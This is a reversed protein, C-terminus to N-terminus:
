AVFVDVSAILNNSSDSVFLTVTSGSAYLTSVFDHTGADSASFPYDQPLQADPDTSLFTVTGTYGIAVNGYADYATVTLTFAAGASVPGSISIVLQAAPQTQYSGIDVNGNVVRPAGRQDTGPFLGAGTDHATATTGNVGRVVTFSNSVTNVATILLHEGDIQITLGPTVALGAAYDVRLSTATADVPSVLTANPGGAGLAPSGPLLAFTQTSGGYDGLPALLPDIPNAATGIQNFNVGDRIGSMGSGDGIVNYSSRPDASGFLDPGAPATNGAVITNSVTLTAFPNAIGGGSVVGSNGAFTSNTVTLRVGGNFIGGGERASNGTFTSGAVTLADLPNAIGGGDLGGDNGAFTSGTVTVPGRFNMIGGGQRASNNAFTSGSVTVSGDENSIGGGGDIGGSNGAFTSGTVTLPGFLNSIGGGHYVAINGTFTCGTVTLPGDFNYIGGGGDADTINHAFTSGTVTLTSHCSEIGGGVGGGYNDALTSGEVTMSGDDNEIGGGGYGVSSGTITCDRVTMTGGGANLLGGGVNGTVNDRITCHTIIAMGSNNAIGGGGGNGSGVATNGTLTSDRVTLAGTNFIGGGEGSFNGSLTSDAVTLTGANFIGAGMDPSLVQTRGDTITLGDLEANVGADIQFVRSAHNGSVTIRDAGDITETASAGAGSLELQGATLTITANGLSADFDITDSQGSSADTNALAIAERLTLLGDQHMDAASTVTLVAPAMRDELIELVLRVRSRNQGPKGAPKKGKNQGRGTWCRLWPRRSM